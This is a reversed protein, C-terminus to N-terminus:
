RLLTRRETRQMVYGLWYWKLGCGSRPVIADIVTAHNFLIKLGVEEKHSYWHNRQASPLSFSGLSFPGPM